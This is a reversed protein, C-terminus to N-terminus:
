VYYDGTGPFSMINNKEIVLLIGNHVYITNEKDMYINIPVSALKM